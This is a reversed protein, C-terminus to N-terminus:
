GGTQIVRLLQIVKTKDYLDIPRSQAFDIAAPTFEGTTIIVGRNANKERMAEQTNRLVQESVADTSRIIRILRNSKKTNRWKGQTETAVVEIVSDSEVALDIISLDMLEVMQRTITEFQAPSAILFDKIADDTRFEEYGKLKARVDRFDPRVEFIREWQGIATHLDRGQEACAALFYRLNLDTELDRKSCKLGKEFETIAKAGQERDMFTCGRALYAKQQVDPDRQALEFEGIAGDFDKMARLTLGLFYHAKYLNNKIQVARTLRDRADQLNNSLYAIQGALYLSEAHKPNLKIAGQLYPQAKDHLGANFFIAGAQYFNEYNLPDLNTLILYEKKAEEFSRMERYLRALRGRVIVERVKDDFKGLKLVQKYEVIAYQTNKEKYYAEALLFHIYPNRDDKELMTNLQKIAQRTYGNRILEEIEGLKKPVFVTKIIYVFFSAVVVLIGIIIVIISEDM